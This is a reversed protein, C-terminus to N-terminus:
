RLRIAAIIAPRMTQPMAWTMRIPRDPPVKVKWIKIVWASRLAMGAMM